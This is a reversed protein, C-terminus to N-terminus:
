FYRIVEFRELEVEEKPSIGAKQKAIAIQKEVTDVGELDPLLLGTRSGRRVIVGYRKPDLEEPGSVPEPAKLLDVSYVLEDLEEARVPDFRPDHFAAAIANHRIEEAASPQTPFITGICGRLNGHKKISVFVGAPKQAEPPLPLEIEEETGLLYNEVTRRALQVLPSEQRRRDKVVAKRQEVLSAYISREPDFGAQPAFTSVLYGVGFPGEYSLVELDFELGDFVGLLMLLTRFGCEAAKEVLAPSLSFIEKIKKEKLLNVLTRDFEEGHPDYAVPAGPLLCHSLDGSAVVAIRRSSNRVARGIARGLQYQELWPLLSMGTAVLRVNEPALFALPVLVGHDLERSFRYRFLFEENLEVCNLGEAAVEGTIAQVLEQDKEWEWRRHFGFNALSGQLRRGGRIALGDQFVPGHPSFILITEPRTAEIRARLSKMAQVTQAVKKTEEGGVEELIIAPHPVFAGYTLM